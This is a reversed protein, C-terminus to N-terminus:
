SNAPPGKHGTNQSGNADSVAATAAEALLLVESRITYPFYIGNFTPSDHTAM